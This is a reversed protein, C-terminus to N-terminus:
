TWMIKVGSMSISLDSINESARIVFAILASRRMQDVSLKAHRPANPLLLRKIPYQAIESFSSSFTAYM